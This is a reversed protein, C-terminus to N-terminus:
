EFLERITSELSEIGGSTFEGMLEMTQAFDLEEMKQSLADKLKQTDLKGFDIREDLSNVFGEVLDGGSSMAEQAAAMISERDLQDLVNDIQEETIGTDELKQQLQRAAQDLQSDGADNDSQSATQETDQKPEAPEDEDDSFMGAVQGADASFEPLEASPLEIDESRWNTGLIQSSLDPFFFYIVALAVAALVVVTVLSSFLNGSKRAM